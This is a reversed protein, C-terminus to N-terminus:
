SKAETSAPVFGIALFRRPTHGNKTALTVMPPAPLQGGYALNIHLGPRSLM